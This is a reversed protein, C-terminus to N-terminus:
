RHRIEYSRQKSNYIESQFEIKQKRTIPRSYYKKTAARFLDFRVAQESSMFVKVKDNESSVHKKFEGQKNFLQSLQNRDQSTRSDGGLKLGRLTNITNWEERSLEAYVFSHQQEQQKRKVWPITWILTVPVIASIVTLAIRAYHKIKLQQWDKATHQYITARLNTLKVDLKSINVEDKHINNDSIYQNLRQIQEDLAPLYDTIISLTAKSFAAQELREIAQLEIKIKNNIYKVHCRKINTRINDAMAKLATIQENVIRQKDLDSFNSAINSFGLCYDFDLKLSFGNILLIKPSLDDILIQLQSLFDTSENLTIVSRTTKKLNETVGQPEIQMEDTFLKLIVEKLINDFDSLEKLNNRLAEYEKEICQFFVSDRISHLLNCYIPMILGVENIARVTKLLFTSRERFTMNESTKSYEDWNKKLDQLSAVIGEPISWRSNHFDSVENIIIKRVRILSPYYCFLRNNNKVKKIQESTLKETLKSYNLIVEANRESSLALLLIDSSSLKEWIITEKQMSTLLVDFNRNEISRNLYSNFIQNITSKRLYESYKEDCFILSGIPESRAYELLIENPVRKVFKSQILLDELKLIVNRESLLIQDLSAEYLIKVDFRREAQISQQMIVLLQNYTANQQAINIEKFNFRRDSFIDLLREPYMDDLKQIKKLINLIDPQAIGYGVDNPCFLQRIVERPFGYYSMLYRELSDMYPSEWLYPLLGFAANRKRESLFYVSLFENLQQQHGKSIHEFTTLEAPNLYSLIQEVAPAGLDKIIFPETEPLNHKDLM